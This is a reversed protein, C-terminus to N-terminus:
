WTRIATQKPYVRLSGSSDFSAAMYTKTGRTATESLIIRTLEDFGSQTPLIGFECQRSKDYLLLVSRTDALQIKVYFVEDVAVTKPKRYTGSSVKGTKFSTIQPLVSSHPPRELVIFRQKEETLQKCEQKHGGKWHAVQCDRSCYAM